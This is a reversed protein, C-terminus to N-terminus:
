LMWGSEEVEKKTNKMGLVILTQESSIPVIGRQQQYEHVMVCHVARCPVPSDERACIIIYVTYIIPIQNSNESCEGGGWVVEESLGLLNMVYKQADEAAAM